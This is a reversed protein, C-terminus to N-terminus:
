MNDEKSLIPNFIKLITAYGVIRAGEQMTLKKGVWLTHPYEEPTIFTITGKATGNPLVIRVDYYHHVGTTLYDDTVLHAPRYGDAIIYDRAGNFEFLAEVDPELNHITKTESMYDSKLFEYELGSMWKFADEFQLSIEECISEATKEDFVQVLKWGEPKCFYEREKESVSYYFGDTMKYVDSYYFWGDFIGNLRYREVAYGVDLKKIDINDAAISLNTVRNNPFVSAVEVVFSGGYRNTQFHILEICDPMIKRFNPYSGTFGKTRLDKIVTSKLADLMIERNSKTEGQSDFAEERKDNLPKATEYTDTHSKENDTKKLFDFLGM